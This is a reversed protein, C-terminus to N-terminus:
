DSFQERIFSLALDPWVSVEKVAERHSRDKRIVGDLYTLSQRNKATMKEQRLHERVATLQDFTDNPFRGHAWDDDAVSLGHPGHSFLLLAFPIQHEKLARAFMMSNEVPVSADTITHFLFVPPMDGTVQTELSYYNKEQEDAEKGLLADRTGEHTLPGMTIVPYGLLLLDPQNSLADYAPDPDSVDAHHVGLSACMHGAASFGLVVIQDPNIHYISSNKRLFRIARSLDHMPQDHLPKDNLVNVSYALVFANFGHKHFYMAPLHAEAPSTYRYAGGPCV